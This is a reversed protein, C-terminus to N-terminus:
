CVFNMFWFERDSYTGLMDRLDLFIDTLLTAVLFLSTLLFSGIFNLAGQLSESRVNNPISISEQYQLTYDEEPNFRFIALIICDKMKM